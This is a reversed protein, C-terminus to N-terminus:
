EVDNKLTLRVSARYLPKLQENEIIVKQNGNFFLIGNKQNLVKNQLQQILIPLNLMKGLPILTRDLRWFSKGRLPLLPNGILLAENEILVWKLHKFRVNLETNVFNQLDDLNVLQACANHEQNADILHIDIEGNVEFLNHNYHEVEIPIARQIPTFLLNPLRRERLKSGLKFLWGEKEYYILAEPMKRVMSSNIEEDIFGKLWVLAEEHGIFLHDHQRLNGLLEFRHKPISLYYM